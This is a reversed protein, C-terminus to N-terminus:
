VQEGKPKLAESMEEGLARIAEATRKVAPTLQKGIAKARKRFRRRLRWMHWRLLLGNWWRAIRQLTLTLLRMM